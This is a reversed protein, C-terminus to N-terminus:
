NSATLVRQHAITPGLRGTVIPDVQILQIIIVVATTNLSRLCLSPIDGEGQLWELIHSHGLKGCLASRYSYVSSAATREYGGFARRFSSTRFDLQGTRM